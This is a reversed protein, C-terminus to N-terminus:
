IWKKFTPFGIINAFFTAFAKFTKFFLCAYTLKQFPKVELTLAPPKGINMEFITLSQEIFYNCDM